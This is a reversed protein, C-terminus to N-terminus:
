VERKCTTPYLRGITDASGYSYIDRFHNSPLYLYSPYYSNPQPYGHVYSNPYNNADRYPNCNPDPFTDCNAISHVESSDSQM